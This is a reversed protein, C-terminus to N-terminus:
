PAIFNPPSLLSLKTIPMKRAFKTVVNKQAQGTPCIVPMTVDDVFIQLARALDDGRTKQQGAEGIPRRGAVDPRWVRWRQTTVSTATRAEMGRLQGARAFTGAPPARKAGARPGEAPPIPNAGSIIAGVAIMGRMRKQFSFLLSHGRM